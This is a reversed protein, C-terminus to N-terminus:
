IAKIAIGDELETLEIFIARECPTENPTHITLLLRDQKDKFIM